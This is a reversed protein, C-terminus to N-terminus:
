EDCRTDGRRQSFSNKFNSVAFITAYRATENRRRAQIGYSWSSIDVNALRNLIHHSMQFQVHYEVPGM